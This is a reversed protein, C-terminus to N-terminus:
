RKEGLEVVLSEIVQLEALADKLERRLQRIRAILEARAPTTM